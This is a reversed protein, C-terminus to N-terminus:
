VRILIKNIEHNESKSLVLDSRGRSPLINQELNKLNIDHWIKLAMDTTENHDLDKFIHMYATPDSEAKKKFAHFRSVYWNALNESPADLYIGFDVFDSVCQRNAINDHRIDPLQLVNLGELILIDPRAFEKTENPLIDYVHHSYTPVNLKEEGAKVKHLFSLLRNVDYSEPFGKKMLLGREILAKNSFLFGDTPVLAVSLNYSKFIHEIIRATTSKGVAVSGAIGIIFPINIKTSLCSSIKATLKQRANMQEIIFASLPLYIENIESLSIPEAFGFLAHLESEEIFISKNEALQLWQDKKFLKHYLLSQMGNFYSLKSPNM